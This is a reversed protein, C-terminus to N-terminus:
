RAGARQLIPELQGWSVADVKSGNLTFTPTGRVDVEDSKASAAKVMADIKDADALCMRAQDAPLGRAAFFDILGSVEGMRVFRESVDLSGAAQMAEANNQIGQYVSQLNRWVEDSLAQMREGPGCQTLTAIVVDNANLFVERQEFSVIGTAIYDDKLSQKGTVSFSACAGCTHSAYEVLKLPATPNGMIYGMGDDSLTFTQNWDEGEPAAIPAIPEGSVGGEATEDGMCAALALPTALIAALKLRFRDSSRTTRASTM